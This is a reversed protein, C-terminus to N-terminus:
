GRHGGRRGPVAVFASLVGTSADRSQGTIVGADNIDNASLLQHPAGAALSDLERMRGGQWVFARCDVFHAKCSTGVVQGRNNVGLGESISDGPLVGLDHMGGHRTWIFAHPYFNAPTAGGPVNAFGTVEGRDNVAAPTNWAVGGLNGIDSPRGHADWVVAHTASFAGVSGGCAGSIGVIQGRDNIGTAASTSDGPLPRLEHARYGPPDWRVARFQLVQPAVCTPDKVTNEAWGVVQGRHNVGAAYGNYGGLTPLKHLREGSWVVGLCIHKTAAGPFFASCSWDEQLPNLESTEAIGAVVHNSRGPWLVASNPGGLTELDTLHGNRWLAAHVTADGPQASLGAVWGRDNISSGQSPSGGLSRLETVRYRQHHEPHAASSAAGVVLAPAVLVGLAAVIRSRALKM